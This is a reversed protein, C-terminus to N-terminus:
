VDMLYAAPCDTKWHVIRVYDSFQRAGARFYSAGIWGKSIAGDRRTSSSMHAPRRGHRTTRDSPNCRPCPAGAGGCSCAHDGDWPTDPHNECVWGTDERLACQM